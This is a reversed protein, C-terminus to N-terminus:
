HSKLNEKIQAQPTVTGPTTTKKKTTSASKMQKQGLSTNKWHNKSAM